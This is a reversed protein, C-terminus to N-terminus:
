LFYYIMNLISLQQRLTIQVTPRREPVLSPISVYIVDFSLNYKEWDTSILLM